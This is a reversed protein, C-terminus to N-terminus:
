QVLTVTVTNSTVSGRFVNAHGYDPGDYHYRLAFTYRGPCPLVYELGTPTLPEDPIHWIDELVASYDPMRALELQITATGGPAVSVLHEQQLVQPGEFFHASTPEPRVLAGDRKLGLIRVSAFTCITVPAPASSALTLVLHLVIPNLDDCAYQVSSPQITLMFPSASAGPAVTIAAVLALLVVPGGIARPIGSLERVTVGVGSPGAKAAVVAARLIRPGRVSDGVGWYGDACTHSGCFTACRIRLSVLGSRVPAVVHRLPLLDLAM